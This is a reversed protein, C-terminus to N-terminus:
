RLIIKFNKPLEGNYKITLVETSLYAVEVSVEVYKSDIYNLFLVKPYCRLDHTVTIIRNSEDIVYDESSVDVGTYNYIDNENKIFAKPNLIIQEGPDGKPGQPGVEGQPGQPGVEGQPGQPGIEGQPGQPGMHGNEGRPGQPGM